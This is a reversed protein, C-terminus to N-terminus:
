LCPSATKGSPSLARSGHRGEAAPLPERAVLRAGDILRALGDLADSDPRADPSADFLRHIRAIVASRGARGRLLDVARCVYSLRLLAPDYEREGTTQFVRLVEASRAGDLVGAPVAERGGQM